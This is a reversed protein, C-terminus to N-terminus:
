APQFSVNMEALYAPDTVNIAVAMAAVTIAFAAVTFFSILVIMILSTGEGNNIKKWKSVTLGLGLVTTVLGAIAGYTGMKAQNNIETIGSDQSAMSWISLENDGYPTTQIMAVTAFAISALLALIAFFYVFKGIKSWKGKKEKKTSKVDNKSTSQTTVEPQAKKAM